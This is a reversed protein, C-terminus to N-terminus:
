GPLRGGPRPPPGEWPRQMLTPHLRLLHALQEPTLLRRIRMRVHVVSRLQIRQLRTIKGLVRALEATDVSPRSLLEGLRQRHERLLRANETREAVSEAQAREIAAAQRPTLGIEGAIVSSTWWHRPTVEPGPPQAIALAAFAVTALTRVVHPM